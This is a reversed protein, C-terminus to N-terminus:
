LEVGIKLGGMAQGTTSGMGWIGMWFPGFLKREVEGGVVWSNVGLTPLLQPSVGAQIGIRWDKTAPTETKTIYIEKEITNTQTVIVEKEVEVEVVKVETKIESEVTHSDINKDITTKKTKTGDPLTTELVEKHYKENVLSDKTKTLEIRLNEIQSLLEKQAETTVQVEKEVIKEETKVIIEPTQVAKIMSFLCALLLGVQLIKFWHTKIWNM